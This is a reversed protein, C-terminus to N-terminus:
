VNGFQYNFLSLDKEYRKSVLEILEDTYMETYKAKKTKKHHEITHDTSMGLREFIKIMDSNFTELKGIFDVNKYDFVTHMSRYHRDCKHEPLACVQRAFSDFSMGEEFNINKIYGPRIESRQRNLIKNNYNSVLRDFPNRVFAFKFYGEYDSAKYKRTSFDVKPDPLM